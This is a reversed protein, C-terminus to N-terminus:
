LAIEASHHGKWAALAARYAEGHRTATAFDAGAHCAEVWRLKARLALFALGRDRRRQQAAKGPNVRHGACASRFNRVARAKQSAIRVPNSEKSFM